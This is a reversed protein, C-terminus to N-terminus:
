MKPNYGCLKTSKVVVVNKSSNKRSREKNKVTKDSFETEATTFCGERKKRYNM